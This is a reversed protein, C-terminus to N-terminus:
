NMDIILMNHKPAVMYTNILSETSCFFLPGRPQLVSIRRKNLKKKHLLDHPGTSTCPVLVTSTLVTRTSRTYTSAPSVTDTSQVLVTGTCTSTVRYSRPINAILLLAFASHRWGSTASAAM